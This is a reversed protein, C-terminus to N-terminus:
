GSGFTAAMRRDIEEPSVDEVHSAISWEHGFPDILKGYRDGWPADMLPMTEKAGSAIARRWVADADDVYLHITVPSTGLSKPSKLGMGPIEDVLFLRSDGIQIEAHILLTGGPLSQRGVEKAGFAKEYFQIAEAAGQVVLHPTVTHHGEPVPRVKGKM